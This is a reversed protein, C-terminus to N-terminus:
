TINTFNKLIMLGKEGSIEPHFQCGFINEKNTLSCFKDYGYNTNALAFKNNEPKVYYSHVFYMYDENYVSDLIPSRDNINNNVINIKNWNMHPIKFRDKSLPKTFHVVNGQIFNLGDHFGDEESSTFLLQMGLCIGLIPKGKNVSSVLVDRIKKEDLRKIGERFSGVGPLVIHTSDDIKSITKSISVDFGLSKFARELNFINAIGVDIIVIRTKYM